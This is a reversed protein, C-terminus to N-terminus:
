SPSIPRLLYIKESDDAHDDTCFFPVTFSYGPIVLNQDTIRVDSYFLCAIIIVIVTHILLAVLFIVLM